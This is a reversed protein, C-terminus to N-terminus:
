DRALAIRLFGSNKRDRIYERLISVSKLSTKVKLPASADPQEQTRSTLTRVQRKRGLFARLWGKAQVQSNCVNGKALDSVPGNPSKM